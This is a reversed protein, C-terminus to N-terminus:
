QPKRGKNGEVYTRFVRKVTREKGMGKVHGCRNLIKWELRKIISM